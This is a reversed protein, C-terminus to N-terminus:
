HRLRRLETLLASLALSKNQGLINQEDRCWRMYHQHALPLREANHQLLRPLYSQRLYFGLMLSVQESALLPKVTDQLTIKDSFFQELVGLSTAIDDAKGSELMKLAQLPGGSCYRLLFDPVARNSHQELWHQARGDFQAALPWHQLRSLLTASLRAPYPSLLLLYGNKPPEELTKLLANAAAETLREANALLVLKNQQQQATSQMFLTIQRVADVGVSTNTTDVLLFDAHNGAQHLLCSKCQGCPKVSNTCLLSSILWNALTTKGIGLPGTFLMAHALNNNAVLTSLNTQYSQLWPLM